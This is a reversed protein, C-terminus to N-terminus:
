RARPIAPIDVGHYLTGPLGPHPRQYGDAGIDVTGAATDLQGSLEAMAHNGSGANM